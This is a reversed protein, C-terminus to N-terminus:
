QASTNVPFLITTSQSIPRLGQGKGCRLLAATEWHTLDRVKCCAKFLHQTATDDHVEDTISDKKRM